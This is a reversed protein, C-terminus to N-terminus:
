DGVGPPFCPQPWPATWLWGLSPLPGEMGERRSRYAFSRQGRKKARMRLASRRWRRGEEESVQHLKKLEDRDLRWVERLQGLEIRLEEANKDADPRRDSFMPDTLSLARSSSPAPMLDIQLPPHYLPLLFPNPPCRSHARFAPLSHM